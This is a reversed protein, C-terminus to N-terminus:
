LSTNYYFWQFASVKETEVIIMSVPPTKAQKLIVAAKGTSAIKELMNRM